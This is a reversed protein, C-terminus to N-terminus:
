QVFAYDYMKKAIKSSNKLLYKFNFKEEVNNLAAMAFYVRFRWYRGEDTKVFRGNINLTDGGWLRQFCSYLSESGLMVDCYEKKKEDVLKVGSYGISVVVKLDWLYVYATPLLRLLMKSNMKKLNDVFLCGAKILESQDIVRPSSLARETLSKFDKAYWALSQKSDKEEGLQLVDGPYLAIPKTIEAEDILDFIKNITYLGSNQHFNESNSFWVYSACPITYKPSFFRINRMMLEAAADGMSNKKEVDNPNGAWSAYSFQLLLLDVKPVLKLFRVQDDGSDFKCDNFNCTIFNNTNFILASDDNTENRVPLCLIKTIQSLRFWEDNLEIVNVFGANTFYEVVRKDTTKQYLIKITKKLEDPISKLSPIHFHDPHEHSIWVHTIGYWDTKEFKSEALLSWGNDFATGFLWPDCILRAFGDDYVFGAHNVWEIKAKM